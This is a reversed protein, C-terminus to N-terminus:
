FAVQFQSRAQFDNRSEGSNSNRLLSIDNQWKVTHAAIYINFGVAAEQQRRLQEESGIQNAGAFDHILADRFDVVAYRASVEYSGNIRWAAQALGGLMVLETSSRCGVDGYGAYGIASISFGHYKVLLEPAIRATLDQKAVPDLDWAVSLAACYRFGEQEEDSDSRVQIGNANYAVHMLLEPHFEARPAPDTLDSPNPIAVGYLLPLGIAHSARANVGTFLGAAYSFTPPKEYGNHLAFGMQREAGFYSTVLSWDVFTLRQFSQIRYRTFPVKYQGYRFQIDQKIRYDFYLDMLELSGPATSLHLRYRLQPVAVSGSLVLRVRRAEMHSRKLRSAGSGLDRSEFLARLQLALQFRIKSSSDPNSLEFPGLSAYGPAAHVHRLNKYAQQGCLTTSPFCANTLACLVGTLVFARLCRITM